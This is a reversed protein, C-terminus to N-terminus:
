QILKSKVTKNFISDMLPEFREDNKIWTDWLIDELENRKVGLALFKTLEEFFSNCLNINKQYTKIIEKLNSKQEDTLIIPKGVIKTIKIRKESILKQFYSLNYTKTINMLNFQMIKIRKGFIKEIIWLGEDYEIRSREQYQNQIEDVNVGKGGIIVKFKRTENNNYM